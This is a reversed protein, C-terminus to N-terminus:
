AALLEAASHKRRSVRRFMNPDLDEPLPNWEPVGEIEFELGCGTSLLETVDTCVYTKGEFEFDLPERDGWEGGALCISCIHQRLELVAEHLSEFELTWVRPLSVKSLKINM